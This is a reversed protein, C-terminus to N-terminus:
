ECKEDLNNEQLKKIDKLCLSEDERKIKEFIGSYNQPCAFIGCSLLLISLFIGFIEM